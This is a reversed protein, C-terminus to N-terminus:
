GTREVEIRAVPDTWGHRSPILDAGGLIGGHHAIVGGEALSPNSVTTGM